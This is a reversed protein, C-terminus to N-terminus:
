NKIISNSYVVNGIQVKVLYLGKPLVSVDVTSNLNNLVNSLCKVGTTNFIEVTSNDIKDGIIHIIDKTISPYVNLKQNVTQRIGSKPSLEGGLVIEDIEWTGGQFALTGPDRFWLMLGAINNIFDTNPFEFKYDFFAVGDTDIIKQQAVNSNDWWMNDEKLPSVKLAAFSDNKGKIRINMVPNVTLNVPPFKFVIQANVNWITKITLIGNQIKWYISDAKGANADHWSVAKTFPTSCDYRYVTPYEAYTKSVLSAVSFLAVFLFLKKTKM